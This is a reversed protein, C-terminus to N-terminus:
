GKALGFPREKGHIRAGPIGLDPGIFLLGCEDLLEAKGADAVGPCGADRLHHSGHLLVPDAESWEVISDLDAVVTHSVVRVEFFGDGLGTPPFSDYPEVDSPPSRRIRLRGISGDYRFQLGEGVVSGLRSDAECEIGVSSGIRVPNLVTNPEYLCSASSVESDGEVETVKQLHVSFIEVGQKLLGSGMEEHDGNITCIHSSRSPIGKDLRQICASVIDEGKELLKFGEAPLPGDAQLVIPDPSAGTFVEASGHLPPLLQQFSQIGFLAMPPCNM